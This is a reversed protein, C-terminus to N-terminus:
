GKGNNAGSAVVMVEAVLGVWWRLHGEVFGARRRGKESGKDEGGVLVWFGDGGLSVVGCFWGVGEFGMRVRRSYWVDGEFVVGVRGVGFGFFM